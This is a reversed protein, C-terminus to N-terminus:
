AEPQVCANGIFVGELEPAGLAAAAEDALTLGAAVGDCSPEGDIAQVDGLDFVDVDDELAAGDLAAEAELEGDGPQIAFETIELTAGDLTTFSLGGSHRIDEDEIATIPFALQALGSADGLEGPEILGVHLDDVLVPVVDPNLVVTTVGGVEDAGAAPAAFVSLALAGATAATTTLIARTSRM